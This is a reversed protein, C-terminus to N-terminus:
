SCYLSPSNAVTDTFQFCPTQSPQSAAPHGPVEAAQFNNDKEFYAMVIDGAVYDKLLDKAADDGGGTGGGSLTVALLESTLQIVQIMVTTHSFEILPGRFWQTM